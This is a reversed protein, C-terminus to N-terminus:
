TNPNAYFEGNSTDTEAVRISAIDCHNQLEVTSRCHVPPRPNSDFQVPHTSIGVGRDM